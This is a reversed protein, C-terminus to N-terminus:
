EGAPRDDWAPRQPEAGAAALIENVRDMHPDDSYPPHPYMWAHGLLHADRTHTWIEAVADELSGGTRAYRQAVGSVSAVSLRERRDHDTSLRGM